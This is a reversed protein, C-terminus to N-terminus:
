YVRFTFSGGSGFGSAPVGRRLWRWPNDNFESIGTGSVASSRVVSFSSGDNGITSTSALVQSSEDAMTLAQASSSTLNVNSGNETASTNTFNVSGFSDLPIQQNAGDSPDEEIWEASSMSSSYEANGTFSQGNTNDTLTITWINNGNETISASISDGPSVNVDPITVSSDPLLEYFATTEIQGDPTVVDQTGTQILDSSSTGGIGIWAADASTEQSSVVQPVVWSGSVSTFNSGNAAYGAWNGTTNSVTQASTQGNGNSSFPSTVSPQKTGPNPSTSTSQPQTITFTSKGSDGNNIDSLQTALASHLSLYIIAIAAGIYLGSGITRINIM